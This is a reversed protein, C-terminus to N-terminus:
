INVGAARLDAELQRGNEFRIATLGVERGAEVLEPRDDIYVAQQPRINGARELAALYIQPDPKRYGVECSAVWDHFLPAATVQTKIYELHLTNTNTLALLKHRKRVREMIQRVELNESFIGTWGRVFQEYTWSFKLQGKLGEYYARAAIQGLEFPLLLEKHYVAAQVDEFSKGILQSLQHMLRDSEVDVVVGGLDFFVVEYAM